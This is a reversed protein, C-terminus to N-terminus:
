TNIISIAFSATLTIDNYPFTNTTLIIGAIHFERM